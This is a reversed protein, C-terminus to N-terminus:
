LPQIVRHAVTRGPGRHEPVIQGGQLRRGQVLRLDGEEDAFQRAVDAGHDVRLGEVRRLLHNPAAVLQPRGLGGLLGGGGCGRGARPLM